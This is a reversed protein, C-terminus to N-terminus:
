REAIEDRVDDADRKERRQRHERHQRLDEAHDGDEVGDARDDEARAVAPLEGRAFPQAAIKRHHDGAHQDEARDAHDRDNARDDPAEGADEGDAGREGGLEAAALGPEEDPTRALSLDDAPDRPRRRNPSARLEALLIETSRFRLPRAAPRATEMPSPTSSRTPEPSAKKRVTAFRATPACHSAERRRGDSRSSRSRMATSTPTTGSCTSRASATRRVRRRIM